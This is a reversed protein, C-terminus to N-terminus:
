YIIEKEERTFTDGCEQCRYTREYRILGPNTEDVVLWAVRCQEHPCPEETRDSPGPTHKAM